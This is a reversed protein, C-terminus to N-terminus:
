EDFALIQLQYNLAVWPLFQDSYFDWSSICVVPKLCHYLNLPPSDKWCTAYFLQNDMAFYFKFILKLKDKVYNVFILEFQM